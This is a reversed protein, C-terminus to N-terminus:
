ESNWFIKDFCATIFIKWFSIPVLFYMLFPMHILFVAYHLERRPETSVFGVLFWSTAPEIGPEAWHTLSGANSHAITHTSSAAQIRQQESSHHLSAATTAGILGRAQFGGYAEPTARCLLFFLFSFLFSCLSVPFSLRSGLSFFTVSLFDLYIFLWGCELVIVLAESQVQLM